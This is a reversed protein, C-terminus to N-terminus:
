SSRVPAGFRMGDLLLSMLKAARDQYGRDDTAMCIGSMARILDEPELDPRIDGAEVAATLVAGAAAYIGKRTETFLEPEAEIMDKLAASLGRKTAVYTVFNQMWAGLAQM